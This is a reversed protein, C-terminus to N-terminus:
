GYARGQQSARARVEVLPGGNLLTLEEAAAARMPQSGNRLIQGLWERDSAPKGLLYRAGPTLERQNTQWWREAANCNPWPLGDDPDSAVDEDDPDDNPGSEFGEPKAAALPRAKFDVGTIRHMTEAALRALEPVQMLELTWPVLAPDGLAGAGRLALRTAGRKMSSEIWRRGAEAGVARMATECAREALVHESATTALLREPARGDGLLAGSWASWCRVAMDEHTAALAVDDRADGRGLEGLARLARARLASSEARLARMLPEGPDHRHIACGAIGIQQLEASAHEGVLCPLLWSMDALPLWGLAAAAARVLEPASAAAELVHALAAGDRCAVEISAGARCSVAVFLATFVSGSSPEELASACTRVGDKGAVVLGDLHAEVRADLEALSARNYASDCLARDRLGWLFASESAHIQLIQQRSM